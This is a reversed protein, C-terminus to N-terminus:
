WITIPWEKRFFEGNGKVIKVVLFVNETPSSRPISTKAIAYSILDDARFKLGNRWGTVFEEKADTRYIIQQILYCPEEERRSCPNSVDKRVRFDLWLYYEGGLDTKLGSPSAHVLHVPKSDSNQFYGDYMEFPSQSQEQALSVGRFVFLILVAILLLQKM